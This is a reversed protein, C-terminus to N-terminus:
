HGGFYLSTGRFGRSSSPPPLEGAAAFASAHSSRRLQVCIILNKRDHPSARLWRLVQLLERPGGYEDRFLLKSKDRQAEDIMMSEEIMVQSAPIFFSGTALLLQTDVGLCSPELAGGNELTGSVSGNDAACRATISRTLQAESRPKRQMRHRRTPDITPPCHRPM